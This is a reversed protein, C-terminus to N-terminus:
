IVPGNVGTAGEHIHAAVGVLGQTRIKANVSKDEGVTITGTGTASTNVPPLEQAGSLRVELPKNGGMSACGSLVIAAILMSTRQTLRSTWNMFLEQTLLTQSFLPRMRAGDMM